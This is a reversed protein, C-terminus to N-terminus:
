NPPFIRKYLEIIWFVLSSLAIWSLYEWFSVQKFEFLNAFFPIEIIIVQILVSVLLAYNLWKNSFIGIKFTSGRLNRMNFANFLQTFAIVLFVMTRAKEIGYPQYVLFATIALGTMIVCNILLYPLINQSLINESPHLPKSNLENGQGKETALAKDCFGDTVLNIWLIQTATLPMAMGLAVASILTLIEAFNTTVLFFSTRRANNFVIRGQEVAHVITAFNDDALVMMSADRAVDTGMIGMSVGVNAQKLAPADNVGDGTMAVLEGKKQLSQAIRLKMLPTLRSFIDAKQVAQDFEAEDMSQLQADSYALDRGPLVIGVKKGIALATESHDGTAMIVRIGAKHCSAIAELVGPRPPDMMGALGVFELNIPFDETPEGEKVALALVRLSEKSWKSIHEKISERAEKDLNQSGGSGSQFRDCIELLHEPAGIFFQIDRGQKKVWTSRYKTESSFAFDAKIELTKSKGAKKALVLFAAETPDGTIQIKGNEDKKIAAHHCHAAVELLNELSATTNEKRLLDGDAEWGEGTVEVDESEPIWIKKITMTNQTLTGTKDTVITSVSGLSETASFERIIANKKSMRFAGIALVISLVAPLGEPISSVLAAISILLIESIPLEQFFYAVSFLSVASAIAIFAMQRALKDTKIQFNTKPSKITTLTFAIEGIQSKLGTATVVATVSGSALFTSKWVMNRMEALPVTGLLENPQKEVPLAEGTLSAETCRANKCTIIRADAPIMDGEELVIIDGPVLKKPDITQLNGSRIVKCKTVLLGKLAAVAGEAKYEQIFGIIANIWIIALIVWVDVYHGTLFSIGAAVLLIYVMLNTFQKLIIKWIPIRGPDPISNPGFKVLRQKVVEERLGEESSELQSLLKKASIQSPHLNDYIM